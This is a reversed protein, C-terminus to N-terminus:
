KKYQAVLKPIAAIKHWCSFTIETLFQQEQTNYCVFSTLTLDTKFQNKKLSFNDNHGEPAKFAAYLLFCSSSQAKQPFGQVLM